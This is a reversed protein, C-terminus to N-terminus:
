RAQRRLEPHAKYYQDFINQNVKGRPAVPIGQDIAWQRVVRAPVPNERSGAQARLSGTAGALRRRPRMFAERRAVAVFPKIAEHFKEANSPSVELVYDNGNVSFRIITLEDHSLPTSDMDDYFQIIERRGM